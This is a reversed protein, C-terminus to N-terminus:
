AEPSYVPDAGNSTSAIVRGSFPSFVRVPGEWTGFDSPAVRTNTSSEAEMVGSELFWYNVWQPREAAMVYAGSEMALRSCMEYGSLDADAIGTGTKHVRNAAGCSYLRIEDIRGLFRRWLSLNEPHNGASFVVPGTSPLNKLARFAGHIGERGVEIRLLPNSDSEGGIYTGHAVIDLRTIQRGHRLAIDILNLVAVFPTRHDVYRVHRKAGFRGSGPIRLDHIELEVEELGGEIIVEDHVQTPSVSSALSNMLRITPGGPDVHGDARYPLKTQNKTQFYLLAARLPEPCVKWFLAGDPPRRWKPDGMVGGDSPDIKELLDMVKKQDDPNNYCPKGDKVGISFGIDTM